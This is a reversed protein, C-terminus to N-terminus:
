LRDEVPEPLPEALDPPPAPLVVPRRARQRAQRVSHMSLYIGFLLFLYYGLVRWVVLTPVVLAAPMLPGLFAAYFGEVGGASGPTPMILSGVTMAMSRFLFLTKELSPFVSWVLFVLMLYRAIWSGVTILFGRLYFGIPYARLVAARGRLQQMEAMVRAEFRRLWKHRCVWAAITELWDPRRLMVYAFLVTWALMGVFYGVLSWMGVAGISHPFVPWWFAAAIVILVTAATWFQDLLMAFLLIAYSDGMSIDADRAVYMAAFPGGGVASPTVNSFFDWSLQGRLAAMFSLHGHAVYHLRWAGFAVRLGLMLLSLAMLGPHVHRIAYLVAQGDFDTVFGIIAIVVLSLLLSWVVKRMSIGGTVPATGGPQVPPDFPLPEDPLPTPM